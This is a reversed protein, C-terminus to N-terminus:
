TRDRLISESNQQKTGPSPGHNLLSHPLPPPLRPKIRPNRVQTTTHNGALHIELLKKSIIVMDVLLKRRLICIITPCLSLFTLKISPYCLFHCIIPNKDLEKLEVRNSQRLAGLYKMVYTQIRKDPYGCQMNKFSM